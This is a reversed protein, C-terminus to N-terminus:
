PCPPAHTLKPGPPPYVSFIYLDRGVMILGPTFRDCPLVWLSYTHGGIAPSDLRLAPSSGSAAIQSVALAGLLILLLLTAGAIALARSNSM